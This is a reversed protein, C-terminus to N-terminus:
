AFIEMNGDDSLFVNIISPRSYGIAELIRRVKEQQKIYTDKNNIYKPLVTIALEFISLKAVYLATDLLNCTPKGRCLIRDKNLYTNGDDASHRIKSGLAQIINQSPIVLDAEFTIIDPAFDCDSLHRIYEPLDLCFDNPSPNYNDVFLIKSVNCGKQNIQKSIEAGISALRSHTENPKENMYVHGAEVCVSRPNNRELYETIKEYKM